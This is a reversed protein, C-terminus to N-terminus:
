RLLPSDAEIKIVLFDMEHGYLARGMMYAYEETAAVDVVGGRILAYRGAHYLLLESLKERYTKLRQELNM